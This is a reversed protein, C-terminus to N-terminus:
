PTCLPPLWGTKKASVGALEDKIVQHACRACKGCQSTAGTEDRLQRVTHVGRTHVLRRIEHDTVSKCLCVYM